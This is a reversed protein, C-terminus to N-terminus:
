SLEYYVWVIQLASVFCCFFFEWDILIKCFAKCSFLNYVFYLTSRLFLIFLDTSQSQYLLHLMADMQTTLLEGLPCFQLFVSTFLRPFKSLRNRSVPSLPLTDYRVTQYQIIQPLCFLPCLCLWHHLHFLRIKEKSGFHISLCESLCSWCLDTVKWSWNRKRINWRKGRWWGPAFSLHLCQTASM